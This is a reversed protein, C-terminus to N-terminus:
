TFSIHDNNNTKEATICIILLIVITVLVCLIAFINTLTDSMGNNTFLNYLLSIDIGILIGILFTKSIGLKNLLKKM